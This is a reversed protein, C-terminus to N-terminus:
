LGIYCYPGELGGFVDEESEAKELAIQADKEFSRNIGSLDIDPVGCEIVGAETLMNLMEQDNLRIRFDSGNWVLPTSLTKYSDTDKIHRCMLDIPFTMPLSYKVIGIACWDYYKQEIDTLKFWSLNELCWMIYGIHTSIIYLIYEGKYKGFTLKRLSYM